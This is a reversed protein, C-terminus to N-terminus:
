WQPKGFVKHLLMYTERMRELVTVSLVHPSRETVKLLVRFRAESEGRLRAEHVLTELMQAKTLRKVKDRYAIEDFSYEKQLQIEVLQSFFNSMEPRFGYRAADSM